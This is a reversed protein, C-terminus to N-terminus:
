RPGEALEAGGSPFSGYGKMTRICSSDEARSWGAARLSPSFSPMLCRRGRPASGRVGALSGFRDRPGRRRPRLIGSSATSICCIAARSAARVRARTRRALFACACPLPRAGLSRGLSDVSELTSVTVGRDQSRSAVVSAEDVLVHPLLRLRLLVELAHISLVRAEEVHCLPEAHLCRWAAGSKTESISSEM